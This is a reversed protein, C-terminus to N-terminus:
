CQVNEPYGKHRDQVFRYPNLGRIVFSAVFFDNFHLVVGKADFDKVWCTKPIKSNSTKLDSLVHFSKGLM